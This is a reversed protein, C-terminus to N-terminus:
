YIELAQETSNYVQNLIAQVTYKTANNPTNSDLALRNNTADYIRNLIEQVTSTTDAM